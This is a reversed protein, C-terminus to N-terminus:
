GAGVPSVIPEIQSFEVAINRIREAEYRLAARIRAQEELTLSGDGLEYTCIKFKSVGSLRAL